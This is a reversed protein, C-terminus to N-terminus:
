WNLQKAIRAAEAVEITHCGVKFTKDNVYDVAFGLITYSCEGTCGGKKIVDTLWNYARKAVEVPIEKGNSTEVRKSAESYRLYSYQGGGIYNTKFDYFAQIRERVQKAAKAKAAKADKIIEAKRAELAASIDPNDIVALTKLLEKNVKIGFYEAYRDSQERVTTLQGIYIEPKRAAALKDVIAKADRLWASFNVRHTEDTPVGGYHGCPTNCMIVISADPIARWTKSIHKATSNSYGRTTFLIAKEGKKNRVHSAIPFHSGYSYITPGTFYFSGAGRGEDQQQHAWVHPLESNSFVKKM